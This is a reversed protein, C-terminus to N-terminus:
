KNFRGKMWIVASKYEESNRYVVTNIAITVTICVLVRLFMNMVLSISRMPIWRDCILLSIGCLITTTIIYKVQKAYFSIEKNNKFLYKFVLRESYLFNIFFLSILTGAIIGNLGIKKGLVYNLVINLSAEVITPVRYYKWLGAANYYAGQMDGITLLYCYACFLIVSSLPLLYTEGMWLVMFPQFICLLCCVCISAIYLYMFNFRIFDEYNKEMTETQLSNGVGALISQIVIGLLIIVGHMIYYYNSYIATMTLGLFMSAFISDFSNRTVYCLKTVILGSIKEKIANKTDNSVKGKCSINPYMRDVQFGTVLNTGITVIPMIIIYRYIDHFAYIFFVQFAYLIIKAIISIKNCVDVRQYASLLANKYGLFWYSVCSNALYMFYIVYLNINKPVSGKIWYELFPAIILGIIAIAMGIVIYAKRILSILACLTEEDNEAIPKYMCYVIALGIGLESLNLVELVSTFLGDLGAYEIGMEHILISRVFFPLVLQVIKYIFGTIINSITNRTRQLKYLKSSMTDGMKM